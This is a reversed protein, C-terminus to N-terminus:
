IETKIFTFTVTVTGTSGLNTITIPINNNAPVEGSYGEVLPSL